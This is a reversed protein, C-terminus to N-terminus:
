QMLMSSIMQDMGSHSQSPALMNLQVLQMAIM